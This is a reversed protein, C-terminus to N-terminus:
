PRLSAAAATLADASQRLLALEERGLDLEEKRSEEARAFCKTIRGM